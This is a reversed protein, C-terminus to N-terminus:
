LRGIYAAIILGMIAVSLVVRIIQMRGGLRQDRLRGFRTLPDLSWLVSEIRGLLRRRLEASTELKGLSPALASSRDDSHLM